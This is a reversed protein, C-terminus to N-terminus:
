PCIMSSKFTYTIIERNIFLLEVFNEVDSLFVNKFYPVSVSLFTYISKLDECPQGDNCFHIKLIFNSTIIKMWKKNISYTTNSRNSKLSSFVSDTISISNKIFHQIFPVKLIKLISTLLTSWVSILLSTQELKLASFLTLM